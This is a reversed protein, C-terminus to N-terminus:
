ESTAYFCRNPVVAISLEIISRVVTPETCSRFRHTAVNNAGCSDECTLGTDFVRGVQFCEFIGVDMIYNVKIRRVLAGATIAIVAVHLAHTKALEAITQLLEDLSIKGKNNGVIAANTVFDIPM